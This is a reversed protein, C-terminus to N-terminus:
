FCLIELYFGLKSRHLNPNKSGFKIVWVFTVCVILMRYFVLYTNDILNKSHFKWDIWNCGMCHIHQALPEKRRVTTLHSYFTKTCNMCCLWYFLTHIKVYIGINHVDIYTYLFFFQKKRKKRTWESKTREDNQSM